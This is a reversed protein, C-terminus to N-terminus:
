MLHNYTSLHKVVDERVNQSKKFRQVQVEVEQYAHHLQNLKEELQELEVSAKHDKRTLLDIYHILAENENGSRKAKWGFLNSIKDSLNIM